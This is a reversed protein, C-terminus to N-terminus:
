RKSVGFSVKGNATIYRLVVDIPNIGIAKKLKNDDMNLARPSEFVGNFNKITAHMILMSRSKIKTILNLRPTKPTPIAVVVDCNIADKKHRIYTDITKNDHTPFNIKCNPCEMTKNNGIKMREFEDTLDFADDFCSKKLKGTNTDARKLEKKNNNNKNGM